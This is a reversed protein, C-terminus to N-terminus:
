RWCQILNITIIIISIIAMATAGCFFGYGYNKWMLKRMQEETHKYEM